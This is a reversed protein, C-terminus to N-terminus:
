MKGLDFVLEADQWTNYKETPLNKLPSARTVARIAADVAAHFFSDSAYRNQDAALVTKIVSGDRNMQIHLTVILNQADKAGVPANWYQRIQERIADEEGMTLRSSITDM